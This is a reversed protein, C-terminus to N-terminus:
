LCCLSLVFEYLKFSTTLCNLTHQKTATAGSPHLSKEKKKILLFQLSLLLWRNWHHCLVTHDDDKETFHFLLLWNTSCCCCKPHLVARLDVCNKVVTPLSTQPFLLLFPFWPSLLVPHAHGNTHHVQTYMISFTVTKGRTQCKDNFAASQLLATLAADVIHQCVSRGQLFCECSQLCRCDASLKLLDTVPEPNTLGWTCPALM